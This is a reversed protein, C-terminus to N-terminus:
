ATGDQGNYVGGISLILRPQQVDVSTVKWRTGMWRVYKIAFFHAYAYPDAVISITNSLIINDNLGEGRDNRKTNRQVDGYYNHQTIVEKYVGPHNVPDNEITEGYGVAGYFKAM